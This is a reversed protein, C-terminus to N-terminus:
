DSPPQSKVLIIVSAMNPPWVNQLTQPSFPCPAPCSDNLQWFRMIILRVSRLSLFRESFRRKLRHGPGHFFSILFSIPKKASTGNDSFELVLLKLSVFRFSVVNILLWSITDSSFVNLSGVFNSSFVM